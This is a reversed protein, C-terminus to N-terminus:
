QLKYSTNGWIGALAQRQAARTQSNQYELRTSQRQTATEAHRSSSAIPPSPTITYPADDDDSSINIIPPGEVVAAIDELPASIAEETDDFLDVTSQWEDFHLSSDTFSERILVAAHNFLLTRVPEQVNLRVSAKM